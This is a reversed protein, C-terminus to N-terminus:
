QELLRSQLTKLVNSLTEVELNYLIAKKLAKEVSSDSLLSYPNCATKVVDLVQSKQKYKDTCKDINDVFRIMNSLNDDLGWYKFIEATVQSTTVGLLEKEVDVIDFGLELKEHFQKLLGRSIILESLIFKGIEQLISALLVEEKLNNDVEGLWLNMLNYSANSAEIYDETNICYPSLDTTLINNFTESITMYITFNIGLLSIVRGITEVKSRFGFLSSNSIKLLTTIVLADKEIIKVLEEIEKNKKKRFNEIKEITQPLPPLSEIKELINELM